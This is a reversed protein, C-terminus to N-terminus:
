AMLRGLADGRFERPSKGRTGFEIHDAVTEAAHNGGQCNGARHSPATPGNQEARGQAAAVRRSLRRPQRAPCPQQALAPAIKRPTDLARCARARYQNDGARAVDADPAQNASARPGSVALDTDEFSAEGAGSMGRSPAAM